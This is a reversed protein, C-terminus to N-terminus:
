RSRRQSEEKEDAKELYLSNTELMTTGDPKKIATVADTKIVAERFTVVVDGSFVTAGNIESINKSTIDFKEGPEFTIRSNESYEYITKITDASLTMSYVPFTFLLAGAITSGTFLYKM